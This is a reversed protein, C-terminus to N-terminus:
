EDDEGPERTRPPDIRDLIRAARERLDNSPVGAVFERLLAAMAPAQAILPGNGVPLNAGIVRGDRDILCNGLGYMRDAFTWPAPSPSSRQADMQPNHLLQQARALVIAQTQDARWCLEPRRSRSQRRCPGCKWDSYQHLTFSISYASRRDM